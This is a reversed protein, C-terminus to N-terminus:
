KIPQRKLSNITGKSTCIKDFDLKDTYEETAQAKPTMVLFYKGLGIDPFKAGM